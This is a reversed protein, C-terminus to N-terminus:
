NRSVAVEAAAGAERAAGDIRSSSEALLCIVIMHRGLMVVQRETFEILVSILFISSLIPKIAM